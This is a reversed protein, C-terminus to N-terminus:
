SRTSNTATFSWFRRGDATDYIARLRFEVPGLTIGALIRLEEDHNGPIYVIRTGNQTKALLEMVVRTQSHRWSPGSGFGGFTSLMGWLTSSPPM